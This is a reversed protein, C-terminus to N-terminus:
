GATTETPLVCGLFGAVQDLSLNVGPGVLDRTKTVSVCYSGDSWQHIRYGKQAAVKHLHIEQSMIHDQATNM